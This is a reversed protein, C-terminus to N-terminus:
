GGRACLWGCRSSDERMKMIQRELFRIRQALSDKEDELHAVQDELDHTGEELAEEGKERAEMLQAM